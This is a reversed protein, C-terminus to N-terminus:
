RVYISTNEDTYNSFHVAKNSVTAWKSSKLERTPRNVSYFTDVSDNYPNYKVQTMWAEDALWAAPGAGVIRGEVWAHVTKRKTERVRLRATRNVYYKVNSLTVLSDDLLHGVVLWRGDRQRCKVSMCGKHLNRYIRVLDGPIPQQRNKYPTLSRLEQAQKITYQM